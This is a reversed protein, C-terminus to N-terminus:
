KNKKIHVPSKLKKGGGGGGGKLNLGQNDPLQTSNQLVSFFQSNKM